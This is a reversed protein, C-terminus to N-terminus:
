YNNNVYSTLQNIAEKSSLEKLNGNILDTFLKTFGNDELLLNRDVTTNAEVQAFISNAFALRVNITNM